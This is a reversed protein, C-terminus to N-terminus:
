VLAAGRKATNRAMSFGLRLKLNNVMIKGDSGLVHKGKKM